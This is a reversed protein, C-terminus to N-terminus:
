VEEGGLAKTAHLPVTKVKVCINNYSTGWLRLLLDCVIYSHHTKSAFYSKNM